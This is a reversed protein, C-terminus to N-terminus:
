SVTSRHHHSRSPVASSAAARGSDPTAPASSQDTFRSSESLVLALAGMLSARPGLASTRVAVPSGFPVAALEAHVPDLLLAGLATLEGGLAIVSPNLVLALTGLARALRRTGDEIVALVAADGAQARQILESVDGLHIGRGALRALMGEAGAYLELCGRRGCWCTPGDPDATVHGLEGAYGDRGRYIASGFAIGLGVRSALKVYLLDQGHPGAAASEGLAGLNADNEVAAPIDWTRSIQEALEPGNWGPLVGPVLFRGSDPAIPAAISIAAGVVQDRDAEAEALTTEISRMVIHTGRQASHGQPLSVWREALVSRSLDGVAVAVHRVGVDVAIALGAARNLALRTPPRGPSDAAPQQYESVLGRDALEGILSSVTARSLGTGNILEARTASGSRRLIDVVRARNGARIAESTPQVRRQM